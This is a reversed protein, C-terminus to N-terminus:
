LASEMHAIAKKVEQVGIVRTGSVYGALLANDCLNNILRPTGVTHKYVMRVADEDFVVDSTAGAVGLRHMIYEGTDKMDLPKLNCTVTIRQRLQRFEPRALRDHLEPQGALIIQMLKHQDTELNSLLRIQEMVEPILDQAEDIILVVNNGEKIQELLFENLREIYALRDRGKVQLGFDNLIARLLQTETLSPNLVLATRINAPMNSLLARCLTTKGSGVEGTLEIFGKRNRIGYMLHDIAQRHQTSYFLFRPDPTINFPMEKLGYFDLYM